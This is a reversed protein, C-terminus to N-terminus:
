APQRMLSLVPANRQSSSVSQSASRRQWSPNQVTPGRAGTSAACFRASAGGLKSAGGGGGSANTQGSSHLVQSPVVQRNSQESTLEQASGITQGGPRGHSTLQVPGDEQMVVISQLSAAAQVTVQPPVSAQESAMEHGALRRQETVQLSAFVQAAPTSHALEQSHSTVQPPAPEHAM